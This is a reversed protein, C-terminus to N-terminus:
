ALQEAEQAPLAAPLPRQSPYPRDCAILMLYATTRCVCGGCDRRPLERRRVPPVPLCQGGQADAQGRTRRNILGDCHM